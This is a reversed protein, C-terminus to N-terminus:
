LRDLLRSLNKTDAVDCLPTPLIDIQPRPFKKFDGHREDPYALMAGLAHAEELCLCPETFWSGGARWGGNEAQTLRVRYILREREPELIAALAAPDDRRALLEPAHRQWFALAATIGSM